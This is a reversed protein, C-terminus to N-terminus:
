MVYGYCSRNNEGFMALINNFIPSFVIAIVTLRKLTNSYNPRVKKNYKPKIRSM